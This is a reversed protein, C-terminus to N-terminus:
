GSSGNRADGEPLEVIVEDPRVVGLHRRVLEDAYDPDAGKPDLLAIRQELVRKKEALTRREAELRAKEARIDDLATFGSPGTAAHMLFYGGILLCLAPLVAHRFLTAMPSSRM